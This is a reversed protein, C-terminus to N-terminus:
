QVLSGTCRNLTLYQGDAVTVYASNEFNDNGIIDADPNSSATVKWYGPTGAEATLRYEGAPIDSGVRYMGEAVTTSPASQQTSADGDSQTTPAETSSGDDAGLPASDSIIRATDMMGKLVESYGEDYDGSPVVAIYMYLDHGSAAFWVYGKYLEGDQSREIDATYTVANNISGQTKESVVKTVDGDLGNLLYDVEESGRNAFNINHSVSIQALGGVSPTLTVSSSDNEGVDWTQPVNMVLNGILVEQVESTESAYPNSGQGLEDTQASDSAAPQSGQPQQGGCGSLAIAGVCGLVLAGRILLRSLM